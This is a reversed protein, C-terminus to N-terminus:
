IAVIRESRRRHLSASVFCACPLSAREIVVM